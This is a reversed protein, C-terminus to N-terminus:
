HVRNVNCKRTFFTQQTSNEVLLKKHQIVKKPYCRYSECIVVLFMIERFNNNGVLPRTCTTGYAVRFNFSPSCHLEM